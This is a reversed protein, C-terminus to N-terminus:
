DVRRFALGRTRATNLQFGPAPDGGIDLSITMRSASMMGGPKSFAVRPSLVVLPAITHGHGDSLSLTLGGDAATIEAWADADDGRYRGAAAAAFLEADGDRPDLREHVMREGGFSVELGGEVPRLRIAGLAGAGPPTGLGGDPQRDLPLGNPSKAVGLKLEGGHDLLSYIMRSDPSWYDGILPKFDEAAVKPTEPGLRGELVVDAVQQALRVVDAGRAGNAIVMVDLGDDPFSLMQATGGMVGGAHQITRLGRYDELMLGLAYAGVSGDDYAPAETLAAWSQASGFLDRRRLHAMWRLMDDITSVIAGEGRVEDSPFLGRRWGGGPTPVHM